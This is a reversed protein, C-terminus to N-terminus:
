EEVFQIDDEAGPDDVIVGKYGSAIGRIGILFTETLLKIKENLMEHRAFRATFHGPEGSVFGEFGALKVLAHGYTQTVASVAACVIDEGKRGGNAHGRVEVFVVGGTSDERRVTVRIM